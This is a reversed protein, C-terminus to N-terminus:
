RRQRAGIACVGCCQQLGGALLRQGRTLQRLPKRMVLTGRSRHAFAHDRLRSQEEFSHLPPLLLGVELLQAAPGLPLEHIVQAMQIGQHAAQM